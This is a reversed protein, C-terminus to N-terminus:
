HHTIYKSNKKDQSTLIVTYGAITPYAAHMQYSCAIRM